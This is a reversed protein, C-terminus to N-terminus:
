AICREHIASRNFLPKSFTDRWLWGTTAPNPGARRLGPMVASNAEVTFGNACVPDSPKEFIALHRRAVNAVGAVVLETDVGSMQKSACSGVVKSIHDTLVATSLTLPVRLGLECLVIDCVNSSPVCEARTLAAQGLAEAAGLGGDREDDVALAPRM